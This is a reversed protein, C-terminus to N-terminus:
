RAPATGKQVQDVVPGSILFRDPGGHVPEKAAFERRAASAVELAERLRSRGAGAEVRPLVAVAAVSFPRVLVEAILEYAARRGGPPGPLHWVGSFGLDLTQLGLVGLQLVPDGVPVRGYLLQGRELLGRQGSKSGLGVLDHAQATRLGTM